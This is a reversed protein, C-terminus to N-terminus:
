ESRLSEVPKMFAARISQYSITLIAICVAILGSLLFVDWSITIRYEYDQLWQHMGYWAIPVAILLAILVLKLFNHTLLRFISYTSAGLVLRISIEKSRQEVMFASLAFLGLCAVVITLIAFSSFIRGMRQVDDYMRAYSEDLFTFRIPQHPSVSKWVGTIAGVLNAMDPSNVKISLINPSNGLVLSLPEIEKKFTEFHFDEVVGIVTWVQGGNTIRQGVPESLGLKQVMAQNIVVAQSDSAMNLAFERGAVVKMSLTKIYDHDVQWIQGIAQSGKNVEGEKWFTNGNRKTGNVPLYDSVSVSKVDPLRLLETKLTKVKDGIASAGQLLIVQDKDFGVEKNLIYNMQRYIIITGVILIISTAFQFVVLLSRTGSSKSGRSVQGKLVQIPQFASLYFAPYLGALLGIILDASLTVPLLWWEQWPFVLSKAAM